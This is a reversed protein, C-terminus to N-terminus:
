QPTGVTQRFGPDNEIPRFWWGADDALGKRKSPNAALYQKLQNLANSRDGLLTYAFAALYAIDRSPDSEADARSRLLVRRASDAVGARALVAAVVTQDYRRQYATDRPATRALVSDLLRWARPVNPAEQRTTLMWLRCEAFKFNEPFRRGGEACWHAADSFQGLDYSSFFLRSLVVDANGLFADEEFARRAALNVDVLSGVQYYLHSLTAWAGAQSPRVRVASELDARADALLQQSRARDREIPLLWRWYRLDGRLELAGPDNAAVALAREAHVLGRAIFRDAGPPDDGLRRSWWYDLWGRLAAPDAWSADLAEAQALLTDAQDYARRLAASDHAAEGERRLRQARQLLAWADANRTGERLRRMSIEAGLRARVLRAAEAALTDGLALVNAARQEVSAREFEAGSNGDVLRVTARLTGGDREVTGLVLTGAGLARAISDRPLGSRRYPAVGGSSVVDLERVEQLARILGETLGDALYGLASDRSGDEFYLVALHRPDLGSASGAVGGGRHRLLLTGGTALAALTVAAVVWAAPRRWWPRRRQAAGGGTARRASTGRSVVRRTATTGAGPLLLDLFEKASQPRDAPVKELLALLADEVEEPVADRVLRISPVAEMTHRAMVARANAGTFPPQGTLMEFGVCGLSYLDSTPGVTDGLAQEPSMYTPTGVAMGTQTLKEGAETAAKAVGFDAILCHGGALLINEPKIDRHIVGLAHAAGLADAVEVLVQLADDVPLMQERDLRDRLSEGQVFPMVYYFLGDASGSDFLSLIHPHHLKAALKIERDFRESGMSAALEPHLVKIAVDREHRVDHALFVTAMGGKGLERDVRYRDALSAQLRELTSREEPPPAGTAGGCKMCFAAGAPLPAGCSACRDDPTPITM